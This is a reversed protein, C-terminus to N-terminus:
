NMLILMMGAIILIIAMIQLFNTQSMGVKVFMLKQLMMVKSQKLRQLINRLGKREWHLLEMALAEVLYLPTPRANRKMM